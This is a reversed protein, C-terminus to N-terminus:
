IKYLQFAKCKLNKAPRYTRKNSIGDVNDTLNNVIERSQYSKLEPFKIIIKHEKIIKTM